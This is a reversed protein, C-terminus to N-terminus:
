SDLSVSKLDQGAREQERKADQWEVVAKSVEDYSPYRPVPLFKIQDNRKANKVPRIGELVGNSVRVDISLGFSFESLDILKRQMEAVRETTAKVRANAQQVRQYAAGIRRQQEDNM